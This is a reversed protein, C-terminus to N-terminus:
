KNVFTHNASNENATRCKVNKNMRTLQYTGVDKSIDEASSKSYVSDIVGKMYTLTRDSAAKVARSDIKTNRFNSWSDHKKIIFSLSVLMYATLAGLLNMVIDAVGSWFFINVIQSTFKAAIKELGEWILGVFINLYCVFSLEANAEFLSTQRSLELSGFTTLTKSYSVHSVFAEYLKVAFLGIGFGSIYHEVFDLNPILHYLPVFPAGLISHSSLALGVIAVVRTDSLAEGVINIATGLLGNASDQHKGILESALGFLSSYLVYSVICVAVWYVDRAFARSLGVALITIKTADLFIASGFNKKNGTRVRLFLQGGPM